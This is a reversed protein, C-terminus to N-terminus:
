LVERTGDDIKPLFQYQRWTNEPSNMTREKRGNTSRKQSPLSNLRNSEDFRKELRAVMASVQGLEAINQESMWIRKWSFVNARSTAERESASLSCQFTVFLSMEYLQQSLGLQASVELQIASYLSVILGIISRESTIPLYTPLYTPILLENSPYTVCAYCVNYTVIVELQRSLLYVSSTSHIAIFIYSIKLMEHSVHLPSSIACLSTIVAM